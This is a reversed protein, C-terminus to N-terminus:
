FIIRIGFLIVIVIIWIGFGGELVQFWFPDFIKRVGEKRAKNARWYFRFGELILSLSLCSCIFVISSIIIANLNISKYVTYTSAYYAVGVGFMILVYAISKLVMHSTLHKQDEANPQIRSADIINSDETM